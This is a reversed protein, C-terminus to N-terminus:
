FLRELEAVVNFKGQQMCFDYFASLERCSPALTERQDSGMGGTGHVSSRLTEWSPTFHTIDCDTDAGQKCEKTQAQM